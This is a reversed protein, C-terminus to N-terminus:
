SAKRQWPKAAGGSAVQQATGAQRQVPAAAHGAGRRPYRVVNQPGYEGSKDQRVAIKGRFPKFHLDESNRLTQIGVAACLDALSQQAIRQADANQNRINLRDWVKRNAHPGDMVELTLILQQGTGSRTDKLDSDIVQLLYDGAPLVDFSREDQPVSNADFDFDLDAM